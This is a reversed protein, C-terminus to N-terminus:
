HGTLDAIVSDAAFSGALESRGLIQEPSQLEDFAIFSVELLVGRYVMKGPKVAENAADLVIMMDLDSTPPLEADDPLWNASRHFVAGRFGPMDGFTQNVCDRANAKAHKLLM